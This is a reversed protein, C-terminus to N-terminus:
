NCPISSLVGIQRMFEPNRSLPIKMQRHVNYVTIAAQGIPSDLLRAQPNAETSRIFNWLNKVNLQLDMVSQIDKAIQTCEANNACVSYRQRLQKEMETLVQISLSFCREFDQYYGQSLVVKDNLYSDFGHPDAFVRYYTDSLSNAAANSSFVMFFLFTAKKFNLM